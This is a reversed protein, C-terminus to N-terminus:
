PRPAKGDYSGTFNMTDLEVAPEPSEIDECIPSDQGPIFRRWGARTFFGWPRFQRTTFVLSWAPRDVEIRHATHAPRILLQGPRRWFTGRRMVERYGGSLIISVFRWPHDHLCRDADSRQIHHLYIRGWRTKLIFYRRIYVTGDNGAIDFYEFRSLLWRLIRTGAAAHNVANRDALTRAPLILLTRGDRLLIEGPGHGHGCCSALMDIGGEQLARVIPAICSDIGFERWKDVGTSSLHAAVKVMVNTNTGHKCM